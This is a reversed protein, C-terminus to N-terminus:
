SKAGAPYGARALAAEVDQRKVEGKVLATKSALDVNVEAVGPVSRLAQQVKAVCGGCKM